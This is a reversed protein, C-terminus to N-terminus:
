MVDIYKRRKLHEEQSPMYGECDIREGDGVSLLLLLLSLLGCVFDDEKSHDRIVQPRQSECYGHDRKDHLCVIQSAFVNAIYM